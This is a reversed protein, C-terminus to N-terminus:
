IFMALWGDKHNTPCLFILNGFKAWGPPLPFKPKPERSPTLLISKSGVLIEKDILQTEIGYFSNDFNHYNHLAFFLKNKKHMIFFNSGQDYGFSTLYHFAAFNFKLNRNLRIANVYIMHPSVINLWQLKGMKQLYDLEEGTLDTTLRYRRIGVGSPHTGRDSYAEEPRSLDYIWAVGAIGTVDRKAINEGEEKEEKQTRENAISGSASQVSAISNLHLIWYTIQSSLNLASYFNDKQLAKVYEYQAEIGGAHTRVFDSNNNNKLRELDEDKVGNVALLSEGFPFTNIENLSRINNKNLIARPWELTTWQLSLPTKSLISQIILNSFALGIERKVKKPESYKKNPDFFLRKTYYQHIEGFSKSWNLSQQTGPSFQKFALGLNATNAPLDLLPFDLIFRKKTSDTQAQICLSFLLFLWTIFNKITM